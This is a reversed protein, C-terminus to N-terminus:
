PHGPVLPLRRRPRPTAAPAEAIRSLAAAQGSKGPISAAIREARDPDTAAVAQAIVSLTWTDPDAVSTAIREADILLRAARDPYNAM